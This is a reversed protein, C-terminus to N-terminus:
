LSVLLVRDWDPSRSSAAAWLALGTGAAGSQFGPDVKWQVGSRPGLVRVRFGGIGVNSERSELTATLWSDAARSFCEEGTFRYLRHFLHAVGARGHCLGADIAKIEEMSRGAVDRALELAETEVRPDCLARAGRLLAVAIALDGYCWAVQRGTARGTSSITYPFASERGPPLRQARLWALSPELLRRAGSHDAESVAAALFSVVGPIGLAMGLNLQGEPCEARTGPTLDEPRTLWAIGSAHEQASAALMEVVLELCETGRPRTRRELAYVGLGTLGGLLDFNGAEHRRVLHRHILDALVDGPADGQDLARLNFLHEIVWAAGAVGTFLGLSGHPQELRELAQTLCTFTEEEYRGDELDLVLYAYFLALGAFGVSLAPYTPCFSPPAESRTGVCPAIAEAIELVAARARRARAEPWLPRSHHFSM